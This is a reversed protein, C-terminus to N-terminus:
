EKYIDYDIVRDTYIYEESIKYVPHFQLIPKEEKKEEVPKTPPKIPERKPPVLAAGGIRGKYPLLNSEPKVIMEEESMYWYSRSDSYQEYGQRGWINKSTATTIPKKEEWIGGICALNREGFPSLLGSLAKVSLATESNPHILICGGVSVEQIPMVKLTAIDKIELVIDPSLQNLVFLVDGLEMEIEVFDHIFMMYDLIHETTNTYQILYNGTAPCEIGVMEGKGAGGKGQWKKDSIKLWHPEALRCWMKISEEMKEEEEPKEEKSKGKVDGTESVTGWHKKAVMHQQAAKMSRFQNKCVPCRWKKKRSKKKSKQPVYKVPDSIDVIVGGEHGENNMHKKALARTLFVKNCIPCIFKKQLDEEETM